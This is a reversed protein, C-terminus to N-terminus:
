EAIRQARQHDANRKNQQDGARIEGSEEERSAGRACVLDRYARREACAGATEDSLRQRFAQRERSDAAQATEDDRVPRGRREELERRIPYPGNGKIGREISTHEEECERDSEAGAEQEADGRRKAYPTDVKVFRELSAPANNTATM